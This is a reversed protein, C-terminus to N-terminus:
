VFFFSRLRLHLPTRPKRYGSRMAWGMLRM